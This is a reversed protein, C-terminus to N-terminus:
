TSFYRNEMLTEFVLSSLFAGYFYEMLVVACFEPSLKKQSIKEYLISPTYINSQSSFPLCVFLQLKRVMQLWFVVPNISEPFFVSKQKNNSELCVVIIYKPEKFLM